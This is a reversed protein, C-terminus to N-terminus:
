ATNLWISAHHMAQAMFTGCRAMISVHHVPKLQTNHYRFNIGACRQAQQAMILAQFYKLELKGYIRATNDTVSCFFSVFLYVFYNGLFDSPHLSPLPWCLLCVLFLNYLYSGSSQTGCVLYLVKCWEVYGDRCVRLYSCNCAIVHLPKWSSIYPHNRHMTCQKVKNTTYSGRCDKGQKSVKNAEVM